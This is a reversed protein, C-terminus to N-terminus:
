LGRKHQYVLHLRKPRHMFILPPVGIVLNPPAASGLGAFPLTMSPQYGFGTGVLKLPIGPTWSTGPDPTSEPSQLIIQDCPNPASATWPQNCGMTSTVVNPAALFRGRDVRHKDKRDKEDTDM